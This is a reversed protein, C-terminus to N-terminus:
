CVYDKKSCIKMRYEVRSKVMILALMRSLNGISIAEDLDTQLISQLETLEEFDMNSPVKLLLYDYRPTHPSHLLKSVNDEVAKWFPEMQTELRKISEQCASCDPMKDELMKIKSDVKGKWIGFFYILGIVEIILATYSVIEM